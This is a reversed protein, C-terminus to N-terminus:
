PYRGHEGILLVGDVALEKGGLTLAEAITPYLPVKHREAIEKGIDQPPIQDLYLSAIEVQPRFDTDLIKCGELFKTVIVDGHSNERYETVLAAIRPKRDAARTPGAGGTAAALAGGFTTLVQRRDM